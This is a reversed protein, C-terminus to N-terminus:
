LPLPSPGDVAAGGRMVRSRDDHSGTWRLYPFPPGARMAGFAPAIGFKRLIPHCEDVAGGPIGAAARGPACAGPERATRRAKACARDFPVMSPGPLFGPAGPPR